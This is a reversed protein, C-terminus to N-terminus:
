FKEGDPATGQTCLRYTQPVNTVSGMGRYPTVNSLKFSTRNRVCGAGGETGTPPFRRARRLNTRPSPIPDGTAGVKVVLEFGTARIVRALLTGTIM